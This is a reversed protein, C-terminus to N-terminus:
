VKLPLPINKSQNKKHLSFMTMGYSSSEIFKFSKIILPYSYEFNENPLYIM